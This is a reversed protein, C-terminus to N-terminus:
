HRHNGDRHHCEVTTSTINLSGHNEIGSELSNRHLVERWIPGRSGAPASYSHKPWGHLSKRTENQQNMCPYPKDIGIQLPLWSISVRLGNM